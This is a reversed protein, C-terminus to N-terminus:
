LLKFKGGVPRASKSTPSCFLPWCHWAGLLRSWRIASWTSMKRFFCSLLLLLSYCTSLAISEAGFAGYMQALHGGISGCKLFFWLRCRSYRRDLGIYFWLSFNKRKSSEKLKWCAWRRKWRGGRGDGDIGNLYIWENWKVCKLNKFLTHNYHILWKM